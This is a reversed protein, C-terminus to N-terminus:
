VSVASYNEFLVALVSSEAAGGRKAARLAWDVGSRDAGLYEVAASGGCDGSAAAWFREDRVFGRRIVAALESITTQGCLSIIGPCAAEVAACAAADSGSGVVAAAMGQAMFHRAVEAYGEARWQKTEWISGPAVVLLKQDTVGSGCFIRLRRRRRKRYRCMFIRSARMLGWCREWGCIGIWRM